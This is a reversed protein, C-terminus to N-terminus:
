CYDDLQLSECLVKSNVNMQNAMELIKIWEYQPYTHYLWTKPHELKPFELACGIVTEISINFGKHKQILFIVNEFSAYTTPSLSARALSDYSDQTTCTYEIINNDIWRLITWEQKENYLWYEINQCLSNVKKNQYFWATHIEGDLIWHEQYPARSTLWACGMFCRWWGLTKIENKHTVDLLKYNDLGAYWSEIHEWPVCRGWKKKNTAFKTMLLSDAATMYWLAQVTTIDTHYFTTQVSILAQTWACLNINTACIDLESKKTNFPYRLTNGVYYGTQSPWM